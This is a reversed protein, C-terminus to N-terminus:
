GANVRFTQIKGSPLLVKIKYIRHGNKQVTKASLIRGGTKLKITTVAQNLTQSNNQSLRIKPESSIAEAPTAASFTTILIFFLSPIITYKM